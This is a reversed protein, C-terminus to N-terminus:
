RSLDFVRHPPSWRDGRALEAYLRPAESLPVPPAVLHDLADDALLDTVLAFRRTHDWRALRHPPLRAVQSSVIRIRQVHFASGLALPLAADGYFSAVVVCAEQGAGDIAAQLAAPSGSADVIVDAERLANTSASAEAGVDLLAAIRRRDPDPDVGLVKAGARALLRAVLLGVVGLGIVVARDGLAAEADWVVNVATELNPALTLRPGPLDRPLPRIAARSVVALDAHPHMAFVPAAGEGEVEGVLAYGYAVPLSFAGRMAPLTMAERVADPVRGLLVLRETGASIGSFRGRILAEGEGPEALQEERVSAVGPREFWVTRAARPPM